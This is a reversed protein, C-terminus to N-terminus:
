NFCQAQLIVSGFKRFSTNDLLLRKQNIKSSEIIIKSQKSYEQNSLCRWWSHSMRASSARMCNNDRTRRAPERKYQMQIADFKEKGV